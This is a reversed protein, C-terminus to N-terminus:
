ELIERRQAKIKGKQIFFVTLYASQILIFIIAGGLVGDYNENKVTNGLLALVLLINILGFIGNGYSYLKPMFFIQLLTTLIIAIGILPIPKYINYRFNGYAMKVAGLTNIGHGWGNLLVNNFAKQEEEKQHDVIAEQLYGASEKVYDYAGGTLDNIYSEVMKEANKIDSVERDFLPLTVAFLLALSLIIRLLNNM